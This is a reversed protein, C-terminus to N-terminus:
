PSAAIPMSSGLHNYSKLSNFKLSYNSGSHMPKTMEGQGVEGEPISSVSSFLLQLHM